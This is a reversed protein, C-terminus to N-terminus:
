ETALADVPTRAPDGGDSGIDRAGYHQQRGPEAEPVGAPRFALPTILATVLSAAALLVPGWGYGGTWGFIAGM